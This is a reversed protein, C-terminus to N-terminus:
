FIFNQLHNVFVQVKTVCGNILKYMRLHSMASLVGKLKKEENIEKMVQIFYKFFNNIVFGLYTLSGFSIIGLIIILLIETM